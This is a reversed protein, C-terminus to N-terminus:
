CSNSYVVRRVASLLRCVASPLRRVAPPPRCVLSPLRCVLSPLRCVASLLSFLLSVCMGGKDFVVNRIPVQTIVPPFTGGRPDRYRFPTTENLVGAQSVGVQGCTTMAALLASALRFSKGTRLNRCVVTDGSGLDEVVATIM